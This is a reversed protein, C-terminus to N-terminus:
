LDLISPAIYFCSLDPIEVGAQPQSFIQIKRLIKKSKKLFINFYRCTQLMTFLSLYCIQLGLVPLTNPGAPGLFGWAYASQPV